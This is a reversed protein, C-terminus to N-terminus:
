WTGIWVKITGLSTPAGGPTYLLYRRLEQQSDRIGKKEEEHEKNRKHSQPSNKKM